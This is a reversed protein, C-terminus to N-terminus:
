FEIKVIHHLTIEKHDLDRNVKAIEDVNTTSLLTPNSYNHSLILHCCVNKIKGGENDMLLIQNDLDINSIKLQLMIKNLEKYLVIKNPLTKNQIQFYLELNIKQIRQCAEEIDLTLKDVVFPQMDYPIILKMNSQFFKNFYNSSFLREELGGEMGYRKIVKKVKDLITVNKTDDINSLCIERKYLSSNKIMIILNEPNTTYIEGEDQHLKHPAKLITLEPLYYIAMQDVKFQITGPKLEPKIIFHQCENCRITLKTQFHIRSPSLKDITTPQTTINKYRQELSSLANLSSVNDPFKNNILTGYEPEFIDCAMYFRSRKFNNEYYINNKLNMTQYYNILEETKKAILENFNESDNSLSSADSTMIKSIQQNKNSWYCAECHLYYFKHLNETSIQNSLDSSLPKVSGKTVLISFCLPCQYCNSCMNNKIKAETSPVNELCHPCYYSDIEYKVCNRCRIKACHRCFYLNVLPLYIGCTCLYKVKM